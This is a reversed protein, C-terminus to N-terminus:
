AVGQELNNMLGHMRRAGLARSGNGANRVAQATMVFEGDSLMAPVDDSTGTGPGSIHGQKRPFDQISMPQGGRALADIIGGQAVTTPKQYASSAYYDPWSIGQAQDQFKGTTPNYYMKKLKAGPDSSFKTGFIKDVESEYEGLTKLDAEEPKMLTSELFSAATPLGFAVLMGKDMGFILNKNKPDGQLAQMQNQILQQTPVNYRKGGEWVGTTIPQKIGDVTARVSPQPSIKPDGTFAQIQQSRALDDPSLGPGQITRKEGMPTTRTQITPPGIQTPTPIPVRGTQAPQSFPDFGGAQQQFTQGAYDQGVGAFSGPQVTQSQIVDKSIGGIGLNEKAANFAGSINSKAGSFLRGIGMSVKEVNSGVLEYLLSEGALPRTAPGMFKGTLNGIGQALRGFFDGPQANAFLGGMGQAAAGGAIGMGTALLANKIGGGTALTGIGAGLGSAMGIGMATTAGFAFPAAVALAVPAVKKLKKKAKGM